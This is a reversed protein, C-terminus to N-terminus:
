EIQYPIFSLYDASILQFDIGMYNCNLAYLHGSGHIHGYFCRKIKYKLLVDIIPASILDAYVAPYHLFVIKEGVKDAASQLSLELRAAERKEIKRESEGPKELIWGRSGCLIFDEVQYSNNHLISINKIHYKQFFEEIKKLTTWWYDHNGKLLIKKGPLSEIFRFDPLAEELTNAWSFDGAIVVTDEEKVIKKWNEEIRQMYNKWGKFIDM